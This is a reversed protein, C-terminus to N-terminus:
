EMAILLLYGRYETQTFFLFYSLPYFLFIHYQCYNLYTHTYNIESFMNLDTMLLYMLLLMQCVIFLSFLFGLVVDCSLTVDALGVM